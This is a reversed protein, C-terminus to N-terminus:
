PRLLWHLKKRNKGHAQKGWLCFKKAPLLKPQRAAASIAGALGGGSCAKGAVSGGSCHRGRLWAACPVSTSATSKGRRLRLELIIGFPWAGICFKRGWGVADGM